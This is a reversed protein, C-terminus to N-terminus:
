QRFQTLIGDEFLLYVGNEYSWRELHTNGVTTARDVNAPTGLALRCEDRTMGPAIKSNIIMDWTQDTINPYAKRPDTFSFIRDFNRNASTDSGYTMYIYSEPENPSNPLSFGVLLPYIHNGAEVTQVLVPIHRQGIIDHGEKDRWRPTSIYFIQGGMLSDALEVASMEVTFPISYSKRSSWEDAAIGTRHYFTRGDDSKLVLEVADTGTLTSATRLEVFRIKHGAIDDVKDSASTFTLGIKADNVLWEKGPKWSATPEAMIRSAFTQEDTVKVGSERVNDLTIKPTSEIGTFCSTFAMLFIANVFIHIFSHISKM